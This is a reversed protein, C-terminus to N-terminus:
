GVSQVIHNGTDTQVVKIKTSIREQLLQVHSIIGVLSNAEQISNLVNMADGISDEDLSGFGEDIFLADIKIGGKQAVTSMGISLALSVLFKEGGSMTNVFRGESDQSNKDFAKLELGKKNSGKARDDSRFLKYRGGHVMELMKNAAAVVSSFLIGLVYRQLGIGTDGRLSKAFALDAEAEHLKDDLGNNKVKIRDLRDSLSRIRGNLEGKKTNFSNIADAAENKIRLCEDMNPEVAGSLEAKLKSISDEAAFKAKDYDNIKTKIAKVDEESLLANRAEAETAFGNESLARAIANKSEDLAIEATKRENAAPEVRAAKGTSDNERRSMENKLIKELDQYDAIEKELKRITADLDALSNIGEVLSRRIVDLKAEATAVDRERSSVNDTEAKLVREAEVKDASRANLENYKADAAKKKRDVESKPVSDTTRVAKHPHSTSGCVPCAEGENLKEALEGTIGALYANLLQTHESSLRSYENQLAVVDSALKDCHNKAVNVKGNAAELERRAGRLEAEAADLGQYDSRKGEYQIKVSKKAEIEAEAAVHANYKRVSEDFANKAAQAEAKANQEDRRRGELANRADDAALMLTKVKEARGAAEVQNTLDNRREAKEDLKKLYAEIDHLRQFHEALKILEDQKAIVGEYDANKYKENADELEFSKGKLLAELQGISGCGEEALSNKIEKKIEDLEEKRAKAQQYFKETYEGWKEMGFISTLIEEKEDGKSMIFKEFQGQPLVIVQRFQEYELGIIEKAKNELDKEKPNEFMVEWAGSENKKMLNYRPSLNKRKRELWREFIYYEGNNEFEFKVFTATNYDANTCRMAEFDNRGNGSSKGYLSFTMADLITTKGTGTKGCILFLGNSAMKAFDVIEHGAYPGFAQFEIKVPRM